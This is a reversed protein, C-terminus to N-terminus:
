ARGHELEAHARSGPVRADHIAASYGSDFGRAHESPTARGLECGLAYLEDALEHEGTRRALDEARQLTALMAALQSM